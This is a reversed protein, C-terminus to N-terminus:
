RYKYNFVERFIAAFIAQVRCRFLIYFAAYQDM